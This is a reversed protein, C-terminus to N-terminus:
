QQCGVCLDVAAAGLVFEACIFSTSALTYIVFTSKSHFFVYVFSLLALVYSVHLYFGESTGFTSAVDLALTFSGWFLLV